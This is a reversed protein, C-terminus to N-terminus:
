LKKCSYCSYKQKRENESHYVNFRTYFSIELLFSNKRGAEEMHMQSLLPSEATLIKNQIANLYLSQKGLCTHPRYM